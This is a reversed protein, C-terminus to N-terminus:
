YLLGSNNERGGHLQYPGFNPMVPHPMVPYPRWHHPRYSSKNYYYLKFAIYITVGFLIALLFYMTYEERKM